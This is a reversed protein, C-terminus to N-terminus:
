NATPDFREVNVGFRWPRSEDTSNFDTVGIEVGYTGAPPSEDLIARFDTDHVATATSGNQLVITVDHVVLTHGGDVSGNVALEGLSRPSELAVLDVRGLDASACQGAPTRVPTPTPDYRNDMLPAGDTCPVLDDPREAFYVAFEVYVHRVTDPLPGARVVYEVVAPEGTATTGPRSDPTADTATGAGPAGVCGALAIM